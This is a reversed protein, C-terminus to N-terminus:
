CECGNAMKIQDFLPLHTFRVYKKDRSEYDLTPEAEHGFHFISYGMKYLEPFLVKVYWHRSPSRKPERAYGAFPFIAITKPYKTINFWKTLRPRQEEPTLNHYEEVPFGAMRWTESYIDFENPFRNDPHQPNVNIILDCKNILEFDKGEPGEEGSTVHIQNILPHNIFLPLCQSVKKAISWYKFSNPYLRELYNLIPLAMISDGILQARCGYIKM